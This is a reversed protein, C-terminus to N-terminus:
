GCLIVDPSTKDGIRQVYLFHMIPTIFPLHAITIPQLKNRGQFSKSPSQGLFIWYIQMCLCCYDVRRLCDVAMGEYGDAEGTKIKKKKM